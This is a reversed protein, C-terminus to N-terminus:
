HKLTKKTLETFSTSPEVRENAQTTAAYTHDQSSTSNPEQKISYSICVGALPIAQYTSDVVTIQGKCDRCGIVQEEKVM